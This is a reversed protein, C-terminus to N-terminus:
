DATIERKEKTRIEIRQFIDDLELGRIDFWKTFYTLEPCYSKLYEDIYGYCDSSHKMDPGCFFVYNKGQGISSRYCIGDYKMSRIYEAIIQTAAYELSHDDVEENVPMAIEETFARLFQNLWRSDHDYDEAFICDGSLFISQSFDIIRLEKKAVYKAVYVESENCRCETIATEKDSAVYLYSIGAPSMRNTKAFAPPAPSMERNVDLTDIDALKGKQRARYFVDDPEVVAEFEMIYPRLKDLYTERQDPYIKWRNPKNIDFFRNYYKITYKFIEWSHYMRTSEMGWLDAKVVLIEADIDEYLDVGGYRKEEFSLGSAEFMDSIISTDEVSSNLADYEELIDRVSYMSAEEGRGNFYYDEESDYGAGTGRDVHEYAKDLCERLHEGMDKTSIIHVNYSGCYDCKGVEDYSCVYDKLYSDSFCNECCFKM